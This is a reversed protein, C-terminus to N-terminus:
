IVAPDPIEIVGPLPDTVIVFVPNNLKEKFPSVVDECSKSVPVDPVSKLISEVEKEFLCIKLMGVADVVALPKIDVDACVKNPVLVKL